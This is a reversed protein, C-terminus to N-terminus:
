ATRVSTEWDSGLRMIFAVVAKRFVPITKLPSCSCLHRSCIWSQFFTASVGRCPQIHSVIWQWASSFDCLAYFDAKRPSSIITMVVYFNQHLVTTGVIDILQNRCYMTLATITSCIFWFEVRSLVVIAIIIVDKDHRRQIDYLCLCSHNIVGTWVFTSYTM